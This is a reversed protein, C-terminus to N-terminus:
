NIQIDEQLGNTQVTETHLQGHQSISRAAETSMVPINGKHKQDNHHCYQQQLYLM